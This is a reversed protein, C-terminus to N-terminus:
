DSLRHRLIEPFLVFDSKQLASVADIFYEVQTLEDVSAVERM